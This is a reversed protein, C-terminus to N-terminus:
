KIDEKNLNEIMKVTNEGFFAEGTTYQPFWISPCNINTEILVIYGDEDVTFDWAICGMHPIRYHNEKAFKIMDNVRPIKYNEFIIGTDPHVEYKDGFETMAYKMLKENKVGIQIGGAHANDCIKGNRGIRMAIPTVFVKSDSIYTDIRITNISSPNLAKFKKDPKIREQIIFNKNYSKLVNDIREEKILDLGNKINLLRVNKGSNTDVTPKIIVEGINDIISLVEKIDILGNESYYYGNCNYIYYKPLRFKEFDVNKFLSYTLIKDSLTERVGQPNFKQLLNTTFYIEPFYDVNFNSSNYTYYKHWDKNIKKGYHDMWLKDIMLKQEETLTSFNGLKQKKKINKIEAKYQKKRKITSIFKIIIIKLKKKM